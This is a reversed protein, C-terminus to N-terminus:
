IINAIALFEFSTLILACTFTTPKFIRRELGKMFGVMEPHVVYCNKIKEQRLYVRFLTVAIHNILFLGM